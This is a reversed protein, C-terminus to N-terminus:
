CAGDILAFAPRIGPEHWDNVANSRSVAVRLPGGYPMICLAEFAEESNLEEWTTLVRPGPWALIDQLKDM